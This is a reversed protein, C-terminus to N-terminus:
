KIIIDAIKKKIIPLSDPSAKKFFSNVNPSESHCIFTSNTLPIYVKLSTYLHLCPLALLIKYM